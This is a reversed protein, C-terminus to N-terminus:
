GKEAWGNAELLRSCFVAWTSIPILVCLPAATSDVVYALMERPTKHKDTLPSMCSAVTLSNLYDDIFVAIGLLWTWILSSKKTKAHKALWDGFAFTGGAKEILSIISGMLGCVIILWAIDESMLTELLVSSYDQLVGSRSTMIFGVASALTLSELIRKTAFIYIFLFIAPICVAAGLDAPNEPLFNSVILTVTIIIIVPYLTRRANFENMEKKLFVTM